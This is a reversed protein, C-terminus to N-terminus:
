DGTAAGGANVTEDEEGDDSDLQKAKLEEEKKTTLSDEM